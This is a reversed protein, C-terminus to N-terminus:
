AARRQWLEQLRPAHVEFWRRTDEVAAREARAPVEHSDIRHGVRERYFDVAEPPWDTVYPSLRM